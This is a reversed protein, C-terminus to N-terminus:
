GCTVNKMPSFPEPFLVNSSAIATASPEVRFAPRPVEVERRPGRVRIEVLPDFQAAARAAFAPAVSKEQPGLTKVVDRGLDLVQAEVAQVTRAAYRVVGLRV